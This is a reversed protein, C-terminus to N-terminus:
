FRNQAIPAVVSRRGARPDNKRRQTPTDMPAMAIGLAPPSLVLPPVLPYKVSVNPVEGEEGRTTDGRRRKENREKQFREERNAASSVRNYGRNKGRGGKTM